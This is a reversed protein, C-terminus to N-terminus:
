HAREGRMMQALVHSLFIFNGILYRRWMRGPELSLRYVWEARLRRVWQPARPVRGSIFDFLAGVAFASGQYESLHRAIWREQRPNGMGVLVLDPQAAKIRRVIEPSDSASFFGDQAGVIMHQPWRARFQRAAADLAESTAGLLFLKLRHSTRDLFQPTFDTGNLNEPFRRGYLLRSAIDVGVGDNVLTFSRLDEDLSEDRAVLNALNANLFALRVPIRQAIRSDIMEILRDAHTVSTQVGLLYRTERGLVRRYIDEYEAATDIGGGVLRIGRRRIERLTEADSASAVAVFGYRSIANRTGATLRGEQSQLSDHTSLILPKGHLWKTLAIFGFTWDIAHVHVVDADELAHLIQRVSGLGGKGAVVRRIEIGDPHNAAAAASAEVLAIRVGHGMAAQERALKGVSAGCAGAQWDFDRVVHVIRLPDTGAAKEPHQVPAYEDRFM